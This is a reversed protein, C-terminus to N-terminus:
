ARYYDIPPTADFSITSTFFDSLKPFAIPADSSHNQPASRCPGLELFIGSRL